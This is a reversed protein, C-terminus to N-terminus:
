FSVRLVANPTRSLSYINVVEIGEQTADLRYYRNIINKNNLLNLISVGAHLTMSKYIATTYGASFNLQVYSGLRYGNPYNYAISAPANTTGPVPTNVLPRTYPRGSMIKSGLSIKLHKWEYTLANNVTHPLEFNSTFVPPYFTDFRYKNRTYAYSLWVYFQRFQKQILFETGKAEYSGTAQITEFQNQFAQSESTIGKVKKYFNDWSILWGRERIVLGISAQNSHQVPIDNDNALIWRRNEIGLFDKQLGVIQTATQSKSEAQIQIKVSEGAKYTLNLRPELYSLKLQEIYNFRLGGQVYLPSDSPNYDLQATLAHTNLRTNVSTVAAPYSVEDRNKISTSNYQYGSQLTYHSGLRISHLFRFGTDNIINRQLTTSEEASQNLADVNYYSTYASVETSQRASWKSKLLVNGGLTTQNLNSNKISLGYPMFTAQTFDLNNKIGIFDAYLQHKEKIIQHYQASFDYFYFDKDTKYVLLNNGTLGTVITNQFIRDSYKKYTPMNLFDTFSRRASIEIASTASTKLLAHADAGIMNIGASGHTGEITEPHSTININSSVSEGYMAPTGNKYIEINQAINPNLASILGFFHGTQFLRIGNWTFLNQDHTGGRVNINSVTEDISNIGPLQQMAKLVDAEILGPLIGFKAPRINYSGTKHLSIGTAIYRETVVEQLEHVDPSMRIEMCDAHTEPVKYQLPKYGAQEIQLISTASPFEFYGDTGTLLRVQGYLIIANELIQGNEDTVFACRSKASPENKPPQYVTIYIGAQKFRLQTRNTIYTLKARLPWRPEPPVINHVVVDNEAFNFKVHHQHAIVSLIRKLEVSKNDAQGFCMPALFFLLFALVFYRADRTM